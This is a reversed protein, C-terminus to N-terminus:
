DLSMVMLEKNKGHEALQNFIRLHHDLFLMIINPKAQFLM